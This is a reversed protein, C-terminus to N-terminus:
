RRTRRPIRRRRPNPDRVGFVVRRVGAALVADTCPPTRGYHNCPELTLYLTAGRARRGAARLAVDEAHPAGDRRHYGRGVVRGGAVVVAGVPSSSRGLGRRGLRVAMRM